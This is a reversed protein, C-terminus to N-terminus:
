SPQENRSLQPRRPACHPMAAFWRPWLGALKDGPISQIPPMALKSPAPHKSRGSPPSIALLHSHGANSRGAPGFSSWFEVCTPCATVSHPIPALTSHTQPRAVTAMATSLTEPLRCWPWQQCQPCAGAAVHCNHAASASPPRLQVLVLMLM